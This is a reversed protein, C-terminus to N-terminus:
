TACLPLVLEYTFKLQPSIYAPRQRFLIMVNALCIKPLLVICPESLVATIIYIYM